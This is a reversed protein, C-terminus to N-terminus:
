SGQEVSVAAWRGDRMYSALGRYLSVEEKEGGNSLVCSVGCGAMSGGRQLDGGNSLVCSVGCGAMSCVQGAGSWGAGDGMLGWGYGVWRSLVLKSSCGSGMLGGEDDKGKAFGLGDGLRVGLREYCCRAMKLGDASGWSGSIMLGLLGRGDDVAVRRDRSMGQSM